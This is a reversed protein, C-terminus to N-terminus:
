SASAETYTMKAMRDEDLAETKPPVATWNVTTTMINTSINDFDTAGFIINDFNFTYSDRANPVPDFKIELSTDTVNRGLSVERLREMYSGYGSSDNSNSSHKVVPITFSGTISKSSTLVPRDNRWLNKNNFTASVSGFGGTYGLPRSINISVGSTQFDSNAGTTYTDGGLGLSMALDMGTFTPTIKRLGSTPFFTTAATSIIEGGGNIVDGADDAGLNGDIKDADFFQDTTAGFKKFAGGSYFVRDVSRAIFSVDVTVLSNADGVNITMSTPCVGTYLYADYTDFYSLFSFSSKRKNANTQNITENANPGPYNIDDGTTNEVAHDKVTDFKSFHAILKNDHSTASPGQNPFDGITIDDTGSTGDSSATVEGYLHKFLLLFGQPTADANDGKYTIEELYFSFSGSVGIRSRGIASPAGLGPQIVPNSQATIRGGPRTYVHFGSIWNQHAATTGETGDSKERVRGYNIEERMFLQHKLGTLYAM